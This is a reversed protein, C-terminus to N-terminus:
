KDRATLTPSSSCRVVVATEKGRRNININLNEVWLRVRDRLHLGERRRGTSLM